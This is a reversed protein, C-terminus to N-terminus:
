RPRPRVWHIVPKAPLRAAAGAPVGRAWADSCRELVKDLEDPLFGEPGREGRYAVKGDLDVVYLREPWADYAANVADDLGDVLVPYGFNMEAECHEALALREEIRIPDEVFLRREPTGGLWRGHQREPLVGDLPHAERIYVCLFQVSEGYREFM